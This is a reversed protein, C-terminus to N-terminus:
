CFIDHGEVEQGIKQKCYAYLADYVYFQKSMNDFDDKTTQRFGEAIAELGIAEAAIEKKNTDAARVIKALELLAPDKLNYKEIIADFSCKDNHHGLEVNPIDFPLANQRFSFLSPNVIQSNKSLGLAHQGIWRPKKERLGIREKQQWLIYNMQM